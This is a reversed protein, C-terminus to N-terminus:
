HNRQGGDEGAQLQVRGTRRGLRVAGHVGGFLGITRCGKQMEGEENLPVSGVRVMCLVSKAKRQTRGIRDAKGGSKTKKEHRASIVPELARCLLTGADVGRTASNRQLRAIPTQLRAIPTQLRAIPTQPRAVPTQPGLLKGTPRPSVARM